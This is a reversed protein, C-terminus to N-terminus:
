VGKVAKPRPTEHGRGVVQRQQRIEVLQGHSLSIELAL